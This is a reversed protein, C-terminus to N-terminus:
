AASRFNSWLLLLIGALGFSLGVYFRNDGALLSDGVPLANGKALSLGALWALGGFANFVAWKM